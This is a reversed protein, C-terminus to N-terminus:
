RVAHWRAIVRGIVAITAAARERTQYNRNDSMVIVNGLGDDASQLRRAVLFGGEKILYIGSQFPDRRSTDVLVKDGEELTGKMRDDEITVIRLHDSLPANVMTLLWSTPVEWQALAVGMEGEGTVSKVDTDVEVIPLTDSDLGTKSQPAIDSGEPAGNGDRIPMPPHRKIDIETVEPPPPIPSVRALKAITAPKPLYVTDPHALTRTINSPAVGAMRAWQAPKLSATVDRYWREVAARRAADDPSDTMGRM